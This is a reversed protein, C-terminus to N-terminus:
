KFLSLSIRLFKSLGEADSKFKIIKSDLPSIAPDMFQPTGTEQM